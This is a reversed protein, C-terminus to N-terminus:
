VYKELDPKSWLEKKKKTSWRLSLDLLFVQQIMPQYILRQYMMYSKIRTITRTHTAPDYEDGDEAVVFAFSMKDIYGGRIEELTNRGNNTGGLFADMEM